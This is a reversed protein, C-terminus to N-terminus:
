VYTRKVSMLMTAGLAILVLITSTILAYASMRPGPHIEGYHAIMWRQIFGGWREGTVKEYAAPVSDPSAWFAKFKDRGMERVADSLLEGAQYGIAGRFYRNRGLSLAYTGAGIQPGVWRRPARIAAVRECIALDGKICETAGSEVNLYRM